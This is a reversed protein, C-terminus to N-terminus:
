IRNAVTVVRPFIYIKKWDINSQSFKKEFYHQSTSKTYKLPVQIKYLEKSDLKGLAYVQNKKIVTHDPFFDNSLNGDYTAVIEHGSSQYLM